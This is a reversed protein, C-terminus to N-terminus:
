CVDMDPMAQGRARIHPEGPSRQWTSGSLRSASRGTNFGTVSHEYGLPRLNM